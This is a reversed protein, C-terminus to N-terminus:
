FSGHIHEVRFYMLWQAIMLFGMGAGRFRARASREHFASLIVVGAIPTNLMVGLLSVEFAAAATPYDTPARHASVCSVSSALFTVLYVSFAILGIRGNALRASYEPLQRVDMALLRKHWAAM